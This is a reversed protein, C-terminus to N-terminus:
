AKGKRLHPAVYAKKPADSAKQDKHDDVVQKTQGVPSEDVDKKKSPEVLKGDGDERRSPPKYANTAKPPNGVSGTTGLTLTRIEQRPTSTGSLKRATDIADKMAASVSASTMSGGSEEQRPEGKTVWGNKKDEKLQKEIEEAGGLTPFLEENQFDLSAGGVNARRNPAVYAKLASANKGIAAVEEPKAEEEVTEEKKRNQTAWGSQQGDCNKQEANTQENEDVISTVMDKIKLGEFRDVEDDYGVWEDEEAAARMFAEEEAARKEDETRAVVMEEQEQTRKQLVEAVRDVKVVTHKHKKDKRKAFFASVSDSM